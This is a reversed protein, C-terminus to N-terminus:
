SVCYLLKLYNKRFFVIFCIIFNKFFLMNIGFVLFIIVIIFIVNFVIDYKQIRRSVDDMFYIKNWNVDVVLYIINYKWFFFCWVDSEYGM